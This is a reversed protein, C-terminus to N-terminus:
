LFLCEWDKSLEGWKFEHNPTQYHYGAFSNKTVVPFQSIAKGTIWGFFGIQHQTFDVWGIVIIDKKEPHQQQPYGYTWNTSPPKPTTKKAVKIDFLKGNIRFDFDDSNRNEFGAQDKQYPINKQNLLAEFGLEGLSGLMAKEIRQDFSYGFRSYLGNGVMKEAQQRAKILLDSFDLHNLIIM